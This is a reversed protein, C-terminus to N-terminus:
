PSFIKLPTKVVNKKCLPCWDNRNSLHRACCDECLILHGCDVFVMVAKEGYCIKCLGQENNKEAPLQKKKQEEFQKEELDM